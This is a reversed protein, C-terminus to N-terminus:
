TSQKFDRHVECNNMIAAPTWGVKASLEKSTSIRRLDSAHM